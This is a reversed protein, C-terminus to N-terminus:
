EALLDARNPLFRLTHARAALKRGKTLNELGECVCLTSGFYRVANYVTATPLKKFGELVEDPVHVPKMEFTPIDSM